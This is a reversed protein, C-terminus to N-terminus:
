TDPSVHVVFDAHNTAVSNEDQSFVDVTLHVDGTFDHEPIITLNNMEDERFSWSGNGNNLGSNFTFHDPVQSIVISLDESGDTDNSSTQINLGIHHNELGSVDQANLVPMDAAAEVHVDLNSTTSVTHGNSNERSTATVTLSTNGSWDQPTQLYVNNANAPNVSWTGNGNDTAGILAFGSALGSITISSITESGDTDTLSIGLNLHVPTDEVGAHLSPNIVPADAIANIHIHGTATQTTSDGERETSTAIITYTADGSFNEPPILAFSAMQAATLSWTGNGNNIGVSPTFGAPLNMITFSLTESGDTDTLSSIVSIPIMAAGESATAPLINLTPTDAVGLVHVETVALVVTVFLLKASITITFDQDSNPPLNLSLGVLQGPLLQWQGNGQNTGSSLSAGVPLGSFTLFSINGALTLLLGADVIPFISDEHVVIGGSSLLGGLNVDLGLATGVSIGGIGLGLGLNLQIGASANGVGINFNSAPSLAVSGDNDHSVSQASLYVRGEFNYPSIIKLGALDGTTLTWSNNGNNIGHNLSFGDPVGNILYSISESGDTDTLAGGITVNVATNKAGSTNSASVTPIDALAHVTVPLNKVISAAAGNSDTSTATISLIFDTDSNAPPTIKLNALQTQTLLWTGNGQNIGASLSAGAPVGSIQVSVSESGDQDGLLAAISLAIQSDENGIGAIVNLQPADAVPLVTVTLPTSISAHDGDHETAIASIQLAIIGAFNEPPNFNLGALQSPSLSWTGNGNNLGASLSAGAPIGSILISLDESGDTDNLSASINLAIATDENGTAAQASLSPTDADGHITVALTSSVSQQTANESSTATVTLNFAGSFNAPPMISLGILQAPTLAWTGNGNNTGASLIANAPVGAITLSLSESGDTDSLASSINLAVAADEIGSAPSTMLTPTSAIGNVSVSLTSPATTANLNNENATASISLPITGSFGQPPMLTLNALQGATLTWTGNGNNTGASLTAGAPIGAITVTLNESGDLDTLAAAINLSIASNEDGVSPLTILTPLDPVGSINVSLPSTTQFVDPGDTSILTVSLNFNGSYNQPPILQLNTLDSVTLSWTGDGNDTGATLTAGVPLNSITLSLIENGLPDYPAATINLAIANDESGSAPSLNLIPVNDIPAVNVSLTTSSTSVSQGNESATATVGLNFSGHYYPPPTITLNALQTPALIWTGNGNDIGASLTAGAPVGSISVTLQESGDTDMLSSSINLSIPSNEAGNATNTSLLPMDPVGLVDVTFGSMIQAHETGDTATATVTLYFSGSYNLPPTLSLFSLQAPMLTWTGNGNDIGASLTAGSPVGSITITLQESGDTDNLSASINLAIATDEMGTVPFVSLNPATAAPDITIPLQGSTQAVTGDESSTATVTLSLNGSYHAPPTFQLNNLEAPTFSWSGDHNDTGSSFSAGAPVGSISVALNESGDNDVLSASLSLLISEGELGSAANLNLVPADAVGDISVHLPQSYSASTGSGSAVATVTLDFSGSYNAPPLLNLNLLQAETLTWSGNGNNVGASLTAGAPLGSVVISLTESGGPNNLSASIGLAISNDEDGSAPSTILNPASAAASVTIDLAAEAYAHSNSESSAAVVFMSFDGTYGAPPTFQLNTLDSPSFSWTGNGNDIGSSFTAGPPVDHITISLIESGDTDTLAASIDLAVPQGEIGAAPGVNLLPVDAIGNVNVHLIQSNDSSTSGEYSTATVTLDFSGSYNLPTSLTLNVLEDQTLTWSGDGNDIGSSLHMGAPVGSILISLTESGDTDSLSAAIDLSVVIDEHGLANRVALNPVSAEGTITVDMSASDSTTLNGLYSTATIMLTLEGSYHEQPILLLGSLQAPILTWTGNGNYTGASLSADLPVGSITILTTVGPQPDATLSIDLLIPDGEVSVTGDAKVDPVDLTVPKQSEDGSDGSAAATPKTLASNSFDLNGSNIGRATLGELINSYDGSSSASSLPDYYLAQGGSIGSAGTFVATPIEINQLTNRNDGDLVPLPVSPSNIIEAQEEINSPLGTKESLSASSFRLSSFLNSSVNYETNPDYGQHIRANLNFKNDAM